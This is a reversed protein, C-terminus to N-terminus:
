AVNWQDRPTVDLANRGNDNAAFADAGADLLIQVVSWFGVACASILPTAGSPDAGGFENADTGVNIKALLHDVLYVNNM